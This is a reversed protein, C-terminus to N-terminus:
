GPRDPPIATLVALGMRAFSSVVSAISMFLVFGIRQAAGVPGVQSHRKNHAGAPRSIAHLLAIGIPPPQLVAVASLPARNDAPCQTSAAHEQGEWCSCRQMCHLGADCAGRCATTMQPCSHQVWPRARWGLSLGTHSVKGSGVSALLTVVSGGAWIATLPVAAIAPGAGGLVQM